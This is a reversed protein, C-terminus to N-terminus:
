RLRRLTRRSRGALTARTSTTACRCLRQLIQLHERFLGRLSLDQGGHTCEFSRQLDLTTM